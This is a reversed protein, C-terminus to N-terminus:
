TPPPGLLGDLAAMFARFDLPKTWYDIAGAQLTRAIDDPMANASLAICPIAATAPWAQLQRMVELGDIDPLQMDLLILDPVLARAQSVGGQGDAALHLVLDDRRALLEAIIMANVPNDEIYLLRRPRLAAAASGPKTNSAPAAPGAPGVPAVAALRTSAPATPAPATSTETAAVYPPALLEIEFVSGQGPRSQVGIQGGMREVLTRAITLGIGSGEIATGEAGLRNFPEFLHNLQDPTMGRGTDAVRLHVRSAGAVSHQWASVEVRGAPRNYKVANSLLNLLVQRLRTADAMVTLPPVEISLTVGQSKLLPDLMPLTAQVLAALAVPQPSVRLEGSELSALDLVDNILSLLHQGAGQVHLLRRRRSSAAEEEGHGEEALMLQTFGLVANLPTRLEHSMRAMFQSKAASERRAIEREQRLAAANRADTVDWNVGIRRTPQGQDDRLTQSRTALWRVQGDPWVIRFEHETPAHTTMAAEHVAIVRARDDPHVIALREEPPLAGPQPPLGRLVWMQEDWFAINARLDVEWTGLGAARTVLAVREAASRLALEAQRRETVDMAVGVFAVPQGQADRQVVRRTLVQRWSGDRRRYRAEMDTPKDNALAMRASALVDALDDPHIFDRVEDISLGEPRPPIDLVAWAQANYHMRQTVLDHRWIAIRGMDVALALQSEIEGSVGALALTETDDLLLGVARAPQGDPGNKVLWQSHVRRLTGEPTRLSFRHSYAGPQRLSDRFVRELSARDALAVQRMSDEFSPAPQGAGLGRFKLVQRDWRGELTRADREWLGLRGFDRALDLMEQLHAVEDQAAQLEDVPQLTLLWGGEPWAKAQARAQRASAQAPLSLTLTQSQPRTTADQNASDTVDNGAIKGADAGAHHQARRDAGPDAGALGSPVAWTQALWAAWEDFSPGLALASANAHLLGGDAMLLLLPLAVADLAASATPLPQLSPSTPGTHRRMDFTHPRAITGAHGEDGQAALGQM